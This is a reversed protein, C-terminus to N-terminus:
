KQAWHIAIAGLMRKVYNIAHFGQEKMKQALARTSLFAETSAPLYEYAEQDGAILQGLCPIVRHFYFRLLPQLWASQPPTTDLAGLRGHEKLTRYQEALAQDVSTVNRLLFGSVVADFTQTKFPLHEADALVWHISEAQPRNRGVAIMEPTFDCAVIKLNESQKYAEFALDGSGTGIDLLRDGPNLDLSQLLERRWSRDQGLTMLRNLLDYRRAIRAFMNRVQQSKDNKPM